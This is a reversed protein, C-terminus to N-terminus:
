GARDRDDERLRRFFYAQYDTGNSGRRWGYAFVYGCRYAIDALEHPSIRSPPLIEVLDRGDFWRAIPPLPNDM